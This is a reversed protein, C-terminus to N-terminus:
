KIEKALTLYYTKSGFTLVVEGDPRMNWGGNGTTWPHTLKGGPWLAIEGNPRVGDANWNWRGILKMM